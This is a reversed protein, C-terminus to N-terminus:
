NFCWCNEISVNEILGNGLDRGDLLDSAIQFREYDKGSSSVRKVERFTEIWVSISTNSIPRTQEGSIRRNLSVRSTAIGGIIFDILRRNKKKRIRSFSVHLTIRHISETWIIKYIRNRNIRKKKKRREETEKRTYIYIYICSKLKCTYRARSNSELCADRFRTECSYWATKWRRDLEREEENRMWYTAPQSASWTFYDKSHRNIYAM